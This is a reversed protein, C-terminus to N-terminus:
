FGGVIKVDLVTLGQYIEIEAVHRYIGLPTTWINSKRKKCVVKRNRGLNIFNPTGFTTVQYLRLGVKQPEGAQVAIRKLASIWEAKNQTMM